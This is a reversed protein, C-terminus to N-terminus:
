EFLPALKEMLDAPYVPHEGARLESVPLWRAISHEDGAPADQEFSAMPELNSPEDHAAFRVEYLFTIEHGRLPGADPEFEFRHESAELLRVVEVDRGLEEKFERVVADESREGFEIFGGIARWQLGVNLWRAMPELLLHGDVLVAGLAVANIRPAPTEPTTM